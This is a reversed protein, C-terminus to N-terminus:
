VVLVDIRALIRIANKARSVTISKGGPHVVIAAGVRKIRNVAACEHEDIFQFTTCVLSQRADRSLLVRPRALRDIMSECFMADDLIVIEGEAQLRM